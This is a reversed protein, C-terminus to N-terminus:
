ITTDTHKTQHKAAKTLSESVPWEIVNMGVSRLEKIRKRQRLRMYKRSNTNVTDTDTADLSVRTPQNPVTNSDSEGHLNTHTVADTTITDSTATTPLVPVIVTANVSRKHLESCLRRIQEDFLPTVVVYQTNGPAWVSQEHLFDSVSISNSTAKTGADDSYPIEANSLVDLIRHKQESGMRHAVNTWEGKTQDTEPPSIGIGTLGVNHNQQLLASTIEYTTNLLLDPLPVTSGVTQIRTNARVDVVVTVTTTQQERYVVTSLENRKALDRWNIRRPSDGHHYERTKDFELGEGSKDGLLAGIFNTGEEEIPISESRISCNFVSPPSEEVSVDRWMGGGISRIRLNFGVFSFEGRRAKVNYSLEVSEEPRLSAVGRPSGDIVSLESPVTDVIRIDSFTEASTNTISLTVQVSDGPRPSVPTINRTVSIVDSSLEKPQRIINLVIFLIISVGSVIAGPHYAMVGVSFLVVLLLIGGLYRKTYRAEGVTTSISKVTSGEESISQEVSEAYDGSGGQNSGGFSPSRSTHEAKQSM